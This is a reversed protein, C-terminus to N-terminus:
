KDTRDVALEYSVDLTGAAAAPVIRAGIQAVRGAIGAFEGSRGEESILGGGHFGNQDWAGTTAFNFAGKACTVKAKFDFTGWAGNDRPYLDETISATCGDLEGGKLTVDWTMTHGGPAQTAAPKQVGTNFAVNSKMTGAAAPVSLSVAVSLVALMSVNRM